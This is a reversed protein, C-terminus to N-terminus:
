LPWEFLGLFTKWSRNDSLAPWFYQLISLSLMRCYKQGANLYWRDKLGKNQRKKLPRKLCIKSYIYWISVKFYVIIYQPLRTLEFRKLTSDKHTKYEKEFVGNFKALISHFPVQPIINEQLEDPYLPPPPLDCTLYLFPQEEVKEVLYIVKIIVYCVAFFKIFWVRITRFVTFSTKLPWELISLVFIKIVFPLKIFTSLIASHERQLMRCYKQDANLRLQDKFGIKTKKLTAM